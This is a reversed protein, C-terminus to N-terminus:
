ESERCSFCHCPADEDVIGAVLDRAADSFANPGSYRHISPTKPTAPVAPSPPPTHPPELGPGTLVVTENEELAFDAHSVYKSRTSKLARNRGILHKFTDVHFHARLVMKDVRCRDDYHVCDSFERTVWVHGGMFLNSLRQLLDTKRIVLDVPVQKLSWNEHLTMETYDDDWEYFNGSSVGVMWHWGNERHLKMLERNERNKIGREFPALKLLERNYEERTTTFFRTNYTWLPVSVVQAKGPTKKINTKFQELIDERKTKIDDSIVKFLIDNYPQLETELVQSNHQLAECIVSTIDFNSFLAM